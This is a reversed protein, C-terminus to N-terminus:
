LNTNCKRTISNLERVYDKLKFYRETDYSWGSAVSSNHLLPEDNIRPDQEAHKNFLPTGPVPSFQTPKIIGGHAHIFDATEYAMEDSQGHLGILMYVEVDGKRFGSNFLFRMAREFDAPEAKSDSAEKATGSVAEFSLRVTRFGSRYMLNSVPETICRAHLGNPTHFSCTIDKEIIQELVPMLCRDANVLLADDYLAISNRGQGVNWEIEEVILEPARTKFSGSIIGSACYDCTFPCGQTFRMVAVDSGIYLDNAPFPLNDFGLDTDSYQLDYEDKLYPALAQEWPGPIVKDAGSYCEAHERCLTAYIGGLIIPTNPFEERCISITEIVGKYWYTMSSTVLIADPAPINKLEHRIIDPSMGYRSYKRPIHAVTDPKEIPESYFKGKGYKQVPPIKLNFSDAKDKSIHLCDIFSLNCGTKKLFSYLYLLGLPRVWLNFAAFDHISPNILLFHPKNMEVLAKEWGV